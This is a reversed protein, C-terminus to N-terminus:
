KSEKPRPYAGMYFRFKRGKPAKDDQYKRALDAVCAALEESFQNRADASGFRVEVELAFTPLKKKAAAAGVQMRGLDRVARSALAIQFAASFRDAFDLPMDGLEGLAASSIAYSQGTRRYIRETVSGKSREEVLEILGQSELERLHYNVRQRPRGLKRALTAASCPEGLNELMEIRGSQLLVAARKPEEIVDIDLHM